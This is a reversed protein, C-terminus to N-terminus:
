YEVIHYVTLPKVIILRPWVRIEINQNAIRSQWKILWCIIKAGVSDEEYGKQDVPFLDNTEMLVYIKDTIVSTLLKYTTSLCTITM